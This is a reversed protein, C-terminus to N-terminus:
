HQAVLTWLCAIDERRSEWECGVLGGGLEALAPWVPLLANERTRLRCWFGM